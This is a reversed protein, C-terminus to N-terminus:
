ASGSLPVVGPGDCRRVGEHRMAQVVKVAGRAQDLSEPPDVYIMQVQGRLNEREALSGMVNLSDGLILRNSWNAAHKYYEISDWGELGDFSDFLTLEPEDEPRSATRRLNEILVRPDVKEQIYLPPAEVVLDDGDQEDKGKWVLQPDLTPDRPYRLPIPARLSEDVFDQADATPINVRKDEHTFAEVPVPGAARKRPPM